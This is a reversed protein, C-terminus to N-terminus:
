SFYPSINESVKKARESLKGYGSQSLKKKQIIM